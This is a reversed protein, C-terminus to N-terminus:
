ILLFAELFSFNQKYKRIIFYLYLGSIKRGFFLILFVLIIVLNILFLHFIVLSVDKLRNIIATELFGSGGGGFISWGKRM